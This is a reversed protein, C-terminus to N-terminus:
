SAELMARAEGVDMAMPKECLVHKGQEFAFLTMERHLDPPTTICVLDVDARSVSERWESTFHPIGFEEATARANEKHGSAVSVLKLDGCAAFAPIQVKRAFGTGIVAIGIEEKM